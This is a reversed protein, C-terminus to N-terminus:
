PSHHKNTKFSRFTHAFGRQNAFNVLIKFLLTFLHQERAFWTSRWQRFLNARQQQRHIMFFLHAM